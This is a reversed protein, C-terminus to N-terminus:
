GVVPDDPDPESPSVSMTARDEVAVESGTGMTGDDMADFLLVNGSEMMALDAVGVDVVCNANAAPTNCSPPGFVGMFSIPGNTKSPPAPRPELGTSSM